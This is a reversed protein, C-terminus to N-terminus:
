FLGQQGDDKKPKPFLGPQSKGRGQTPRGSHQPAPRDTKQPFPDPMGADGTSKGGGESRLANSVPTNVNEVQETMHAAAANEIAEPSLQVPTDIIAAGAPPKTAAREIFEQSAKFSPDNFSFSTIARGRKDFSQDFQKVNQRSGERIMARTEKGQTTMRSMENGHQAEMFSIQRSNERDMMWNETVAGVLRQEMAERGRAAARDKKASKSLAANLKNLGWRPINTDM